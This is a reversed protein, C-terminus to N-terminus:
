LRCRVSKKIDGKTSYATQAIIPLEPRIKKIKRTADYGNMLPMKIDMFVLDIEKNETCSQVAEKGNKARHIIFDYEKIKTLITKLFLFNIEGDEAILANYQKPVTNNTSEENNSEESTVPVYPLEIRFTSGENPISSFSLKGKMLDVNEKTIALGLGLGEYQKKLKNQSTSFSKFIDKQDKEDIGFGSDRVTIILSSKQIMCSILIAGKKTFKISNEVIGNIIKTLKSKDINAFRENHKLNNNLLLTIGKKNAEIAFISYSTEFVQFLDTKQPNLAVQQTQLQSIELINDISNILQKGSAIIIDTYKQKETSTVSPTGLRKSFDIIGSMPIQIEQSVNKIFATKLRDGKEATDKAIRLQKTRQKVIFGLYFNLGLFISLIIILIALFSLLFSPDKYFPKTENYLWNEIINQKERESINEISKQIIGNLVSNKKNVSVGTKYVFSTEASIELHDLNKTKIIYNVVAQPGIYADYIGSNLKQLCTLDNKDEVFTHDPYKRKLNEFIAYDKPVTIIKDKFNKINNTKYQADKRVTIVHKSEFLEAYFNLYEQRNKTAQIQLVIDVKGNRVDEMLKPWEQYYVRKFKFDIKKEILELYDIFIGAIKNDGDIFQYPPYYPFLAIVIENNQHLWIDEEETLIKDKSCFSFLFPLLISFLLLHLKKCHM